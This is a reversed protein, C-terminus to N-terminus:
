AILVTESVSFTNFVDVSAVSKHFADFFLIDYKCDSKNFKLIQSFVVISICASRKLAHIRADLEVGMTNLVLNFGIDM